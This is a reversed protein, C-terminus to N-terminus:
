QPLSLPSPLAALLRVLRAISGIEFCGSNFNAAILNRAIGVGALAGGFHDVRFIRNELIGKAHLLASVSERKDPQGCIYADCRSADFIERQLSLTVRGLADRWENGASMRGKAAGGCSEVSV